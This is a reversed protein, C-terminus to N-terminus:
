LSNLWNEMIRKGCNSMFSEPHFQLGYLPKTRHRLAAINGLSDFAGAILEKPLNDRRVVWSHYHGALVPAEVGRFLINERDTIEIRDRFGHLPRSLRVIDGGFFQAIAQHGLCIGLISHTDKCFGITKMLGGAQSPLGPGPSILIGDFGSLMGVDTEDNKVVCMNIDPRVERLLQIINWVFSDYNDIVLIGM